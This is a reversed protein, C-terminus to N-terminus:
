GPDAQRQPRHAKGRYGKHVTLHRLFNLPQLEANLANAAPLLFFTHIEMYQKYDITSLLWLM